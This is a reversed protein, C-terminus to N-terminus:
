ITSAGRMQPTSSHHPPPLLPFNPNSPHLSPDNVDHETYEANSQKALYASLRHTHTLTQMSYSPEPMSKPPETQFIPGTTAPGSPGLDHTSPRVTRLDTSKGGIKASPQPQEPYTNMPMRYLSQSQNHWNATSSDCMNEKTEVKHM